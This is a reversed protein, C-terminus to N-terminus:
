KIINENCLLMIIALLKVAHNM